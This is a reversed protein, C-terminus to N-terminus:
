RHVEGDHKREGRSLILGRVGGQHRRRGRLLQAGPKDNGTRNPRLRHGARKCSATTPTSRGGATEYLQVYLDDLVHEKLYELYPMGTVNTVLYSLLMIGYNSYPYDTGPDFDLTQLVQYEIM